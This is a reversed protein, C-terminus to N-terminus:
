LPHNRANKLITLIKKSEDPYVAIHHNVMSIPTYVSFNSTKVKIVRSSSLSLLCLFIASLFFTTKM